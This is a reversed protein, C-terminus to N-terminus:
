AAGACHVILNELPKPLHRYLPRNRSLTERVSQRKLTALIDAFSTGRRLNYWPRLPIAIALKRPRKAFWIVILSYLIMAMPATREVAHRTWSQSDEFGLYQKCDRFTVEISWRMAYRQLIEVATATHDTTFFAQPKKGASQPEVAVVRVMRQRLVRFWMGVQTVVRAKERRGYIHLTYTRGRREALLQCPSPLQVGRLAPRGPRGKPRPKPRAFIQAKFHMRGTLDFRPPLVGAVSGGCYASDAVVHFRRDPFAHALLNLTQMALEPRTRYEDPCSKKQRYLRLLVPLSFYVSSTFPLEVIVSLVVWSHGRSMVAKKRSSALPNRHMGVGFIKRGVKRSLTDDLSLFVTANKPILTMALRLVAVGLEDLSWTASAFLRYFASHHRKGALGAAVLIGSITRRPAFLWGGMLQILNKLTPVTMIPSLSLILDAFTSSLHV